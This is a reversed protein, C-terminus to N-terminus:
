GRLLPSIGTNALWLTVRLVCAGILAAVLGLMAWSSAPRRWDLIAAVLSGAGGIVPVLLWFAIAFDGLPAFLGYVVAAIITLAALAALSIAIIKVLAIDRSPTRAAAAAAAADGGVAARGRILGLLLLYLFGGLLLASALFAVPIAPTHWATTGPMAMHSYGTMFGMFLAAAIALVAAIKVAMGGGVEGAEGAAAAGAVGTEGAAVGVASGGGAEGATEGGGVRSALLFIVGAALTVAFALFELSIPSGSSINRVVAMIQAPKAVQLLVCAGGAAVLVLSTIAAAFNVRALWPRSAEHSLLAALGAFGLLGAGGGALLKFLVIPWQVAM